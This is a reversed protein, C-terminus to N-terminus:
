FSLHLGAWRSPVGIILSARAPATLEREKFWFSLIEDIRAQDEDTFSAGNSESLLKVSM